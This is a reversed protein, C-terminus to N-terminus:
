HSHGTAIYKYVRFAQLALRAGGLILPVWAERGNVHKAQLLGRRNTDYVYMHDGFFSQEVTWLETGACSMRTM